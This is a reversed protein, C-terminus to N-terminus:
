YFSFHLGSVLSPEALTVCCCTLTRLNEPVCRCCIQSSSVEKEPELHFQTLIFDLNTLSDESEKKEWEEKLIVRSDKTLKPGAQAM